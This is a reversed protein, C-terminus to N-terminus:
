SFATGAADSLPNGCVECGFLLCGPHTTLIDTSLDPARASYEDAMRRIQRLEDDYAALDDAREEGSLDTDVAAEARYGAVEDTKEDALRAFLEPDAKFIAWSLETWYAFAFGNIGEAEIRRVASPYDGLVSYLTAVDYGCVDQAAPLLADLQRVAQVAEARRGTRILCVAANHLSTDSGTVEYDSRYRSLAEEHRGARAYGDALCRHILPEPKKRYATNLASLANAHDGAQTCLIGYALYPAHSRPSQKLCSQLLALAEDDRGYEEHYLWALNHYNEVTPAGQLARGFYFAEDKMDTRADPHSLLAFGARTQAQADCPLRDARAVAAEAFDKTVRQM